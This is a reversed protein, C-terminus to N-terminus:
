QNHPKILMYFKSPRSFHFSRPVAMFSASFALLIPSLMWHDALMNNKCAGDLADAEAPPSTVGSGEM